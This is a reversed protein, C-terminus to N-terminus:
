AADRASAALARVNALRDAAEAFGDPNSRRSLRSALQLAKITAGPNAEGSGAIDYATGHAPTAIWFPYGGILTVGRDFGILKMAIQGQDHYMTLVADFEGKLARVYVTDSPIPGDVRFQKEAAKKVAPAIINDDETGFNGGDGAHPNLGAVGIKPNAIGAGEMTQHTLTIARLLREETILGAVESLPVHSTVRANWVEDLVNFESGSVDTGIARKIFGIEDVYSPDGLRMAHKNFPTFCVADAAGDAALRLALDFNALAVSGGAMSSTGTEIADMEAHALDLFAARDFHAPDFDPLELATGAQEEGLQWMRRDGIVLWDAGEFTEEDSLAKIALENGIGSPDGLALAILPRDSM